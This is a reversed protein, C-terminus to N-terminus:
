VHLRISFVISERASFVCICISERVTGTPSSAKMREFEKGGSRRGSKWSAAGRAEIIYVPLM